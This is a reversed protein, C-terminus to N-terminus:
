NGQLMPSGQEEVLSPVWMGQMPLCIRLWQVVLCTGPFLQKKFIFINIWKFGWLPVTVSTKVNNAKDLHHIPTMSLNFFTNLVACCPPVSLIRWWVSFVQPCPSYRGKERWYILPEGLALCHCGVGISKGPFDWPHLLRTPQLGHPRLSGPFSQAVENM